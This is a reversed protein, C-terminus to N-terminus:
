KHTLGRSGAENRLECRMGMANGIEYRGGDQYATPPLIIVPMDPRTRQSWTRVAFQDVLKLEDMVDRQDRGNHRAQAEVLNEFGLEIAV